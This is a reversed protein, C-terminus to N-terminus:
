CLAKNLSSVVRLDFHLCWMLCSVTCWDNEVMDIKYRVIMTVRLVKERKKILKRLSGRM